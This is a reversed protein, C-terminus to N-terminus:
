LKQNAMGGPQLETQMEPFSIDISDTVSLWELGGDIFNALASCPVALVALAGLILNPQQLFKPM